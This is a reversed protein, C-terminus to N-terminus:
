SPQEMIKMLEKIVKTGRCIRQEVAQRSVGLMEALTNIALPHGAEAILEIIEKQCPTLYDLLESIEDLSHPFEEDAESTINVDPRERSGHPKNAMATKCRNKFLVWFCAEFPAKCSVAEYAVLYAESVFDQVEYASYYLLHHNHVYGCIKRRHEDVWSMALQWCEGSTM